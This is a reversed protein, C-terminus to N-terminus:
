HVTVTGPVFVEVTSADVTATQNTGPATLTYDMVGAVESIARGLRSRYATEGTGLSFVYAKIAAVVDAQVTEADYGDEYELISATVDLPVETISPVDVEATVPRVSDLYALVSSRLTGGAAARNGDEDETYVAVSVTGAGRRLALCDAQIVGDVSLAWQEYDSATGGANGSRIRTLLRALLEADTEDDTGGTLDSQLLATSDIGIPPSDLQIEDGAVKNGVTGVTTADVGVDTFGGTITGGGTTVFATGDEHTGTLGSSVYVGETGTLRLVGETAATASLPDIGYLSAHRRLNASDATDPFIQREVYRLSGALQAFVLAFSSARVYIESGESVDAGNIQSRYADLLAARLEDFTQPDYAM